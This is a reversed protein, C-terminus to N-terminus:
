REESKGLMGIHMTIVKLTDIGCQSAMQRTKSEVKKPMISKTGRIRLSQAYSVTVLDYRTKRGPTEQATLFVDAGPFLLEKCREANKLYATELAGDVSLTAVFRNLRSIFTAPIINGYKM